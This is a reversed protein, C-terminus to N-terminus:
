PTRIRIADSGLLVVTGSDIYEMRSFGTVSTTNYSRDTLQGSNLDLTAGSASGAEFFLVTREAAGGYPLLGAYFEASKSPNIAALQEPDYHFLTMGDANLFLYEGLACEVAFTDPGLVLLRSVRESDQPMDRRWVTRVEGNEAQHLRMVSQGVALIIDAGTGLVAVDRFSERQLGLTWRRTLRGTSLDFVDIPQNSDARNVSWASAGDVSFDYWTGTDEVPIEWRLAGDAAIVALRTEGEPLRQYRVLLNAGGKAYNMTIPRGPLESIVFQQGRLQLVRTPSDAEAPHLLIAVNGGEVSTYSYNPDWGAPLAVVRDAALSMLSSAGLAMSAFTLFLSRM